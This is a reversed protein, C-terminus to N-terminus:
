LRQGGGQLREGRPHLHDLGAEHGEGGPARRAEEAAVLGEGAPGPGGDGVGEGGLDGVAVRRGRDEDAHGVGGEGGAPGGVRGGDVGVAHPDDGGPGRGGEEGRLRDGGEVPGLQDVHELAESRFLTTYP